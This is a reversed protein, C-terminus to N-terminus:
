GPALGPAGALSALNYALVTDGALVLLALLGWVGLAADRSRGRSQVEAVALPLLAALAIAAIAAGGPRFPSPFLWQISWLGASLIALAPVLLQGERVAAYIASFGGVVLLPLIPLRFWGSVTLGQPALFPTVMGTYIAV